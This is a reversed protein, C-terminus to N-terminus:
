KRTRILMRVLRLILIRQLAASAMIGLVLMKTYYSIIISLGHVAGQQLNQWPEIIGAWISTSPIITDAASCRISISIGTSVIISTSTSISIHVRFHIRICVSSLILVSVQAIVFVVRM